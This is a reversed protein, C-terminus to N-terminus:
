KQNTKGDNFYLINGDISQTISEYKDNSQEDKKLVFYHHHGQSHSHRNLKMTVCPCNSPSNLSYAKYSDKYSSPTNCRANKWTLAGSSPRRGPTVPVPSISWKRYSDKSTSM